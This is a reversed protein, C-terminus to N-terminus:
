HATASSHWRLSKPSAGKTLRPGDFSWQTSSPSRQSSLRPDFGGPQLGSSQNASGARKPRSLASYAPLASMSAYSTHSIARGSKHSSAVQLDSRTFASECSVQGKVMATFVEYNKGDSNGSKMLCPSIMLTVEPNPDMTDDPLSEWLDMTDPNYRQKPLKDNPNNLYKPNAPHFFARQKWMDADLNVATSIIRSLDNRFARESEVDYSGVSGTYPALVDKIKKVLRAINSNPGEYGAYSQQIFVVNSIRWNFYEKM